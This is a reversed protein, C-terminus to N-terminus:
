FASHGFHELAADDGSTDGGLLCLDGLVGTRDRHHRQAHAPQYGRGPRHHDIGVHDVADGATLM